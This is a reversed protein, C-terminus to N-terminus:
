GRSGRERRMETRIKDWIERNRVMEGVVQRGYLTVVHGTTILDHRILCARTAPHMKPRRGAHIELLAERSVSSLRDWTTSRRSSEALAEWLRTWTQQVAREPNSTIFQWRTCAAPQTFCEPTLGHEVVAPAGDPWRDIAQNEAM